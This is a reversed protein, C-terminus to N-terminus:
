LEGKTVYNKITTRFDERETMLYLSGVAGIALGIALLLM